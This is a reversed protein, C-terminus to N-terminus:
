KAPLSLAYGAGADVWSALDEDSATGDPAVFVAGSMPRGSFDFPRANPDKLAEPGAEKGVRVILDDGLVGCAMNGDLMWCLGGFMKQERQEGRDALLARVRDALEESYAM